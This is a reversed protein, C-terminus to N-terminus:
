GVQAIEDKGGQFKRMFDDTKMFVENSEKSAGALAEDAADKTMQGDDNQRKLLTQYLREAKKDQSQAEFGAILKTGMGQAMQFYRKDEEDASMILAKAGNVDIM